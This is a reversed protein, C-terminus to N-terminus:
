PHRLEYVRLHNGKWDAVLLYGNHYLLGAPSYDVPFYDLENGELSFIKLEQNFGCQSVALVKDSIVTFCQPLILSGKGVGDGITRLCNGSADFEQVRHNLQDVVWFADPVDVAPQVAVPHRLEGAATGFRNYVTEWPKSNSVALIRHSNYDSVLMSEGIWKCIGVPSNLPAVDSGSNHISEFRNTKPDYIQILRSETVAIWIRDRDDVTINAPRQFSNAAFKDATFRDVVKGKSDLHVLANEWNLSVYLHGNSTRAIGYPGSPDQSDAKGVLIRDIEKLYRSCPSAALSPRRLWLAPHPMQDAQDLEGAMPSINHLSLSSQVTGSWRQLEKLVITIDNLQQDLVLKFQTHDDSVEAAQSALTSLKVFLIDWYEQLEMFRERFPALVNNWLTEIRALREREPNGGASSALLRLILSALYYSLISMHFGPFAGPLKQLLTKTQEQMTKLSEIKPRRDTAADCFSKSLKHLEAFPELYSNIANQLIEDQSAKNILTEATRLLLSISLGAKKPVTAIGSFEWQELRDGKQIWVQDSRLDSRVPFGEIETDFLLNGHGDCYSIRHSRGDWSLLGTEDASIWEGGESPMISLPFLNGFYIQKLNWRAPEYVFLASESMGLISIPYYLPDFEAFERIIGDPLYDEIPDLCSKPWRSELSNPFEKGLQFLVNGDLGVAVIRHNGSDLVLWYGSKDDSISSKSIFRVDVVEKFPLSGASDWLCKFNGDLDFIQLRRNWSDCVALCPLSMDDLKVIGLSIGKPYWFQGQSQGQGTIHWRVQGSKDLSVVSHNFEDSYYFNGAADQVVTHLQGPVHDCIDPLVVSQVPRFKMERSDM